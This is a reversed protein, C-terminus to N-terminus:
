RSERIMINWGMGWGGFGREGFVWVLGFWVVAGRGCVAFSDM